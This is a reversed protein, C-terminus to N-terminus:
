KGLIYYRYFGFYFSSYLRVVWFFLKCRVRRNNLRLADYLWNDAQRFAEMAEKKLTKNKTKLAEKFTGIAKRYQADHAICQAIIAPSLPHVGLLSCLFLPISGGDTAAGKKVTFNHITFDEVVEYLTQKKDGIAPRIIPSVVLLKKPKSFWNVFFGIILGLVGM